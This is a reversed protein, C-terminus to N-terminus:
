GLIGSLLLWAAVAVVVLMIIITWWPTGPPRPGWQTIPEDEPLPGGGNRDMELTGAEVGDLDLPVPLTIGPSRRPLTGFEVATVTINDDSGLRYAIAALSRVATQLDPTAVVYERIVEDTLTKYLGDSCLLVAHPEGADFPGFVDVEVDADTGIARTLANRWPSQALEEASFGGDRSAEAVVSHDSTLQRIGSADIRYARSDGVNGVEYGGPRAVIAVLTTGMGRRDGSQHAERHVTANAAAFANRLADGQGLREALVELARASAIEGAAHGGMGDAIAALERGDPLRRVLVADQNSARRGAHTYFAIAPALATM